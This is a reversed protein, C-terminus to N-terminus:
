DDNKLNEIFIEFDKANNFDKYVSAFRVYAVQDLKSLQYMIEKGIDSTEIESDGSSEFKRVINDVLIEIQESEVSRKRLATSISRRIKDRDFPKIDKNKKIVSLERLQLREFTTFRSDCKPCLRRRRISSGDETSRSDKVITDEEGCFPCRM